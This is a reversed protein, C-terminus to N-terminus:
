ISYITNKFNIFMEEMFCDCIEEIEKPSVSTSHAVIVGDLLTQRDVMDFKRNNIKM